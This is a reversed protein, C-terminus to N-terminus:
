TYYPQNPITWKINQYMKANHIQPINNIKKFGLTENGIRKTFKFFFLLGAFLSLGICLKVIFNM